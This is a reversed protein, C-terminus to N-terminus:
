GGLTAVLITGDDLLAPAAEISGGSEFTWALTPAAPGTFPSRNTHRADLHLMGPPGSSVKGDAARRVQRDPAANESALSVASESLRGRRAALAWLVGLLLFCAGALAVVNRKVM